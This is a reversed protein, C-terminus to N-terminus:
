SRTLPNVSIPSESPLKCCPILQHSLTPSCFPGFFKTAPYDGLALLFRWVTYKNRPPSPFLSLSPSLSFCRWQLMSVKLLFFRELRALPSIKAGYFDFFFPLSFARPLNNREPRQSTLRVARSLTFPLLPLIKPEFSRYPLPFFFTM